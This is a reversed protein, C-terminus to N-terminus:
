EEGQSFYDCYSTVRAVYLRAEGLEPADVLWRKGYKQLAYNVRAPGSNYSALIAASLIGESDGSLNLLNQFNEQRHWYGNLFKIYTLGGQISHSPNLRWENSANIKGRMVKMKIAPSSMHNIEPYRPWEKYTKIIEAEGLPTIQTLGIAKAWSVAKADFGSEQAVLGALFNPNIKEDKGMKQIMKKVPLPMGIEHASALDGESFASCSPAHYRAFVPRTNINRMYGFYIRNTKLPQIRLNPLILQLKTHDPDLFTRKAQSLFKESVDLGNYFLRVKYNPTIGVPDEITVKFDVKGHLIQDKPFLKIKISQSPPDLKESFPDIRMNPTGFPTTPGACGFLMSVAAFALLSKKMMDM